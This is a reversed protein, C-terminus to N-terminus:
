ETGLYAEIVDKNNQVEAPKGEAIKKGYNMVHVVEALGMVVKMDHEVILITIGRKQIQRILEMLNEKEKTNMGAAPEDLLMVQPDSALARAIELKRQNGYSLSKAPFAYLDKLGVFKLIEMSKEKIDVEESVQYGTKFVTQLLNSNTRSHRGIKVNELVSINSFLNINQYTRAIGVRNVMYPKFGKISLGDFIVDGSLPTLVGSVINFLTTKGAGNPGILATISNKVIDMSVQNVATLGGFKMVVNDIKLM